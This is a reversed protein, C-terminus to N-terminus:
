GRKLQWSGRGNWLFSVFLCAAGLLLNEGPLLRRREKLTCANKSAVERNSEGAGNWSPQAQASLRGLSEGVYRITAILSERRPARLSSQQM